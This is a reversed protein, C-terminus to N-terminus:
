TILNIAAPYVLLFNKKPNLARSAFPLVLYVIRRYSITKKGEMVATVIVPV